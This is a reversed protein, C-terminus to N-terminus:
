LFNYKANKDYVLNAILDGEVLTQGPQQKIIRCESSGAGVRIVEISGKGKPLNDDSQPDGPPPVGENRDYIEFTLGESVQDGQGLDIYVTGGSAIRIIHGDAQRVVPDATPVRRTGLKEQLNEIIRNSAELKKSLDSVQVQTQAAADQAAKQQAECDTQMKKLQDDKSGQYTTSSAVAADAQARADALAKELTQRTENLQALQQEQQKKAGALQDNLQKVEAVRANLAQTLGGATGDLNDGPLAPVGAAKAADQAPAMVGQSESMAKDATAGGGAIRAAMDDREKMAVNLLSMGKYAGSPDNDRKDKLAAIDPGGLAAEAVVDKYKKSVTEHETTVRNSEVYFYIAFITSALAIISMAVLWSIMAGRSGQNIPPM